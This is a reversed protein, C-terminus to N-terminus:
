AGLLLNISKIQKLHMSVQLARVIAFHQKTRDNEAKLKLNSKRLEEMQEFMQAYEEKLKFHSVRLQEFENDKSRVQSGVEKFLSIV